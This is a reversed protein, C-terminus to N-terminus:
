VVEAVEFYKLLVNEFDNHHIPKILYTDCGALAGKLKDFSSSRSTLLVIPTKKYISFQRIRKCASYGDMGPMMVDMFVIDYKKQHLQALGDEASAALDPKVGMLSFEIEIQKRVPLSDDIVLANKLGLFKNDIRESRLLRIGAITQGCIRADDKGIEFEPFFKLEKITFDDLSKLLRMPNIPLPIIYQGDIPESSPQAFRVLPLKIEACRSLWRSVVLPTTVCLILIDLGYPVATAASAVGVAKYSRKRNHTLSFIRNFTALANPSAGIIGVNFQRFQANKSSNSQLM